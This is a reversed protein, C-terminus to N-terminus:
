SRKRLVQFAGFAMLAVGIYFLLAGLFYTISLSRGPIYLMDLLLWRIGGFLALAGLVVLALRYGGSPVSLGMAPRAHVLVLILSVVAALWVVQSYSYDLFIGFILDGLVLLASGALIMMEGQTIGALLGSM